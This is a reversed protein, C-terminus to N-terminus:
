AAARVPPSEADVPDNELDQFLAAVAWALNVDV